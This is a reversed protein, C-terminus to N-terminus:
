SAARLKNSRKRCIGAGEQGDSRRNAKSRESSQQKVASPRGAGARQEELRAVGALEDTSEEASGDGVCSWPM